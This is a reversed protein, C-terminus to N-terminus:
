KHAIIGILVTVAVGTTFICKKQNHWWNERLVAYIRRTTARTPEEAQVSIDKSPNSAFLATFSLIIGAVLASISLRKRRM